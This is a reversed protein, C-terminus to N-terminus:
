GLREVLRLDAQQPREGLVRRHGEGVLSQHVRQRDRLLAVAVQDLMRRVNDPRRIRM